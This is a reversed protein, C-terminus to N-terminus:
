RAAFGWRYGHYNCLCDVAGWLKIGLTNPRILILRDDITVIGRLMERAANEDAYILRDKM